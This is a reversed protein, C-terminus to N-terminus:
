ESQRPRPSRSFRHHLLQNAEKAWAQVRRHIAAKSLPPKQLALGEILQIVEHSLQRHQGKDSRSSRALGPLGMTRYQAVWRRATRIPLEYLKIAEPLTCTDELFPKLIQYRQLATARQSESLSNM